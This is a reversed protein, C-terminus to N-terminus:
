LAENVEWAAGEAAGLGKTDPGGAAGAPGPASLGGQAGAPGGGAELEGHKRVQKKWM